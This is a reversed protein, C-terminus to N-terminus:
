GARDQRAVEVYEALVEAMEALALRDELRHIVM